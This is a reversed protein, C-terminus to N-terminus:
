KFSLDFSGQVKQLLKNIGELSVDIKVDGSIGGSSIYLENQQSFDQPAQPVNNVSWNVFLDTFNEKVSSMHLPYFGFRLTNKAFDNFTNLARNTLIRQTSEDIEYFLLQPEYQGASIDFSNRAFSNERRDNTTVSIKEEQLLPDLTFTFSQKGFGSDSSERQYNREWYYILNPADAPEVLLTEPIATLRIESQTIPLIRGKYFPTRYGDVVEWLLDVESPAFRFEKRFVQNEFEVVATINSINGSEGTTFSYEKEGYGAKKRVGDEFWAIYYNNLNFSYSGLRLDVLENTGPIEPITEVFIDNASYLQFEQAQTMNGRMFFSILLMVLLLSIKRGLSLM